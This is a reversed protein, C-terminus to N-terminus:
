TGLLIAINWWALPSKVRSWIKAHYRPKQSFFNSWGFLLLLSFHM